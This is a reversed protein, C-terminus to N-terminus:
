QSMRRRFWEVTHELGERLEVGPTFDLLRRANQIDALSHRVDGPRPDEYIPELRAGLIENLLQVLQNLSYRRGCAINVTTGRAKSAAADLNASVVNSVYTFDRSQEGDGYIIPNQRRLMRTIFRPIVAAYDSSPDQRPGFVNFYRLGVCGFAYIQSFVKGYLEAAFKTVAYPSIPDAQLSERKPLAESNGYVSSSSAYIVKAVGADRAALFVNLTGDLNASNSELPDEV